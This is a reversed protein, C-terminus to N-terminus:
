LLNNVNSKEDQSQLQETSPSMMSNQQQQQNLKGAQIKLLSLEDQLLKITQQMEGM